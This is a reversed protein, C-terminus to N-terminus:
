VSAQRSLSSDHCCNCVYFGLLREACLYQVEAGGAVARAVFIHSIVRLPLSTAAPLMLPGVEAQYGRRGVSPVFCSVLFMQQLALSMSRQVAASHGADSADVGPKLVRLALLAAPPAPGGAVKAGPGGAAAGASLVSGPTAGAAVGASPGLM